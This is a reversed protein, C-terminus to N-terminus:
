CWPTKPNSEHVLVLNEKNLFSNFTDEWIKWRSKTVSKFFNNTASFCKVKRNNSNIEEVHKRTQYNNNMQLSPKDSLSGRMSKGTCKYVDPSSCSDYILLCSDFILLLVLLQWVFKNWNQFIFGPLLGTIIPLIHLHKTIWYILRYLSQLDM